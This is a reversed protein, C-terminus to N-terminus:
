LSTGKLFDYIAEQARIRAESSIKRYPNDQKENIIRAKTNDKWQIDLFTKLEQQIAKDYIPCAVEVRRDLNSTMWDASSIYYKEKGGNYFILIRSHELFKDLISIAEINESLGQIGPILSCSSRVILKIRVGAKSAEYIKRIMHQDALNNLKLIIYAEKGRQANKIENQILEVFRERMCFPSVVLHKFMSVKYNNEFFDFVRSVEKTIRQDSTFLSHDSYIKATAENYNGTGINAYHLTKGKERRTILCLKAHVKLGPVGYIVRAGEEQLKNAWYINAEEDFRAQLEMIVTVAKGNKIANILANIVKSNKAARYLTMKISTVKPDISAERLLDIMYDFSQYPYHLIIDKESITKLLSKQYELDKHRLPILPLYQLSRSGIKPFNMFDKFNHYRGGPILNDDKNLHIHKILFELLEKPIQSDYIFRVPRGGKRLKLSKSIKRIFSESVDDEIDLEADRTLKITYAEFRDFHFISFIDKLNYRIVDDLLIIYKHGDSEPLILFRPLVDTPVEILAYKAKRLHNRKLLCIALYISQDKLDPFKPLHSIMIPILTPRVEQRFYSKVFEGQEENLQNENVIFIKHKELEKLINLYILDSKEQQKLVIEQIEELIEKPDHGILKKAKKGLSTLRKLTAVRVRFFEDLNSSFIGLFKIREILPVQPDAAEQLVRANFSLWSIERSIFKAKM